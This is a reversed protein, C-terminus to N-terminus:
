VGAAADTYGGYDHGDHNTNDDNCCDNAEEGPISATVCLVRGGGCIVVGIRVVGVRVVRGHVCRSSGTVVLIIAWPAIVRVLFPRGVSGFSTNHHVSVLKLVPFDHVWYFQVTPVHVTICFFHCDLLRSGCKLCIFKYMICPKKQAAIGRSVYKSNL